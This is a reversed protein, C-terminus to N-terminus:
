MILFVLRLLIYFLRGGMKLQSVIANILLEIKPIEKEIVHAVKKDEANIGILIEETSMKDLDTYLSEKETDPNNKKM